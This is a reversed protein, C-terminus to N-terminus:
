DRLSKVDAFYGETLIDVNVLPFWIFLTLDKRVRDM